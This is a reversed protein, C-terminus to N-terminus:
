YSNVLPKGNKTRTRKAADLLTTSLSKAANDRIFQLAKAQQAAVSAKIGSVTHPRRAALASVVGLNGSMGMRAACGPGRFMYAPLTEGPEPLPCNGDRSVDPPTSPNGGEQVVRQGTVRMDVLATYNFGPDVITAQCVLAPGPCQPDDPNYGPNPDATADFVHFVLEVSCAVPYSVSGTASDVVAVGVNYATPQQFQMTVRGGCTDNRYEVFSAVCNRGTPRHSWVLWTHIKTDNYIGMPVWVVSGAKWANDDQMELVHSALPIIGPAGSVTCYALASPTWAMLTIVILLMTKM